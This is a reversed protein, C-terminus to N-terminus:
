LILRAPTMGASPGQLESFAKRILAIARIQGDSDAGSAVTRAMLIARAGDQSVWVGAVTRPHASSDLQDLVQQMEATPDRALWDTGMLGLTGGQQAIADQMAQTLGQVTFREPVVTQSL